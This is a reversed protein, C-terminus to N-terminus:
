LGDVFRFYNEAKIDVIWYATDVSEEYLVTNM